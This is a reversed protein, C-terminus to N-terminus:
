IGGDTTADTPADVGDIPPVDAADVPADLAEADVVGGDEAAAVTCVGSASCTDGAVCDSHRLCLDEGCGLLWILLLSSRM